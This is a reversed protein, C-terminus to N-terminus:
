LQNLVKQREKEEPSRLLDREKKYADVVDASLQEDKLVADLAQVWFQIRKLSLTHLNGTTKALNGAYFSILFGLKYARMLRLARYELPSRNLRVYESLAQELEPHYLTMYNLFRAWSEYKNGFTLSTHDLLYTRGDRIRLNHPVFDTHTLFDSYRDINEREESLFKTARDFTHLLMADDQCAAIASSRFEAFSALYTNANKMGFASRIARAHAYTTAHVSEQAELGALALDFQELLPYELFGREEAIFETISLVVGDRKEYLLEEPSYFSRYAFDIDHLVRRCEHERAIERMGAPISSAKIIVRHGDEKRSGTLVLKPGSLLYREGEIHVQEDDLIFGLPHVLKEIRAYEADRYAEWTNKANTM